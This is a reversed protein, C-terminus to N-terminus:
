MRVFVSCTKKACSHALCPAHPQVLTTYLLIFSACLHGDGWLKTAEGGWGSYDRNGEQKKIVYVKYNIRYIHLYYQKLFNKATYNIYFMIKHAKYFINQNTYKGKIYWTTIQLTLVDKTTVNNNKSLKLLGLSDFCQM